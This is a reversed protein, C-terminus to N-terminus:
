PKSTRTAPGPRANLAPVPQLPPLARAADLGQPIQNATAAIDQRIAFCTGAVAAFLYYPLDWFALDLFAGGVAYGVLSVQAMSAFQHAWLRSPINKCQKRLWGCQLYVMLWFTVFLILGIFGQSGLVQFYISHAVFASDPAPSYKASTDPGHWEFGGALPFRDKAINTATQWAYIRGMASTDEEHSASMTNMRDTWQAPMNPVAVALFVATVLGIVLKKRSRLWLFVVMAVIALIAGRSYTGLVAVACLVMVLILGPRLWKHNTQNLLFYILPICMTLGVGLANNGDMVSDPPGNVMYNGGTALVFLGGKTGYFALSLALVSVLMIVDRKSNVLLMLVLAMLFSKGTRELYNQALIPHFAFITTLVAWLFLVILASAAMGGKYQKKDTGTVLGIITVIVMLQAFPFNYAFGYTLRHPNMVSFLVWGLAGYFPRRLAAIALAIGFALMLYDRM